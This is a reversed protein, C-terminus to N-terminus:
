NSFTWTDFEKQVPQAYSYGIYDGSTYPLSKWSTGAEQGLLGRAAPKCLLAPLPTTWAHYILANGYTAKQQPFFAHAGFLALFEAAPRVPLTENRKTANLSFGAGLASWATVGDLKTVKPKNHVAQLQFTEEPQESIKDLLAITAEHNSSVVAGIRVQGAIGGAFITRKGTELDVWPHLLIRSDGNTLQMPYLPADPKICAQNNAEPQMQLLTNLWELWEEASVGDARMLREEWHFCAQSDHRLALEIVGCGALFDLPNRQDLDFQM